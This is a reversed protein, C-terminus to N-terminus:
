LYLFLVSKFVFSRTNELPDEFEGKSRWHHFGRTETKEEVAAREGERREIKGAWKGKFVRGYYFLCEWRSEAGALKKVGWKELMNGEKELWVASFGKGRSQGM